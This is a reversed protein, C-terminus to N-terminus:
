KFVTHSEFPSLVIPIKDFEEEGLLLDEMRSIIEDLLYNFDLINFRKLFHQDTNVSM